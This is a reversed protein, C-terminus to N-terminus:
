RRRSAQFTGCSLYIAPATAGRERASQVSHVAEPPIGSRSTRWESLSSQLRREPAQWDKEERSSRQLLVPAVCRNFLALSVRAFFLRGIPRPGSSAHFVQRHGWWSTPSLCGVGCALRRAHPTFDVSVFGARTRAPTAAM